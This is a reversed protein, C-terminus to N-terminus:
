LVRSLSVYARLLRPDALDRHVRIADASELATDDIEPVHKVLLRDGPQLLNGLVAEVLAHNLHVLYSAISLGATAVLLRRVGSGDHDDGPVRLQLEDQVVLRGSPFVKLMRRLGTFDAAPAPGCWAVSEDPAVYAFPFRHRLNAPNGALFFTRTFTRLWPGHRDPDLEVAFRLASEALSALHFRRFM